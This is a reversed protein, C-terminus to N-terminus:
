TQTSTTQYNFTILWANKRMNKYFLKDNNAKKKAIFTHSVLRWREDTLEKLKGKLEILIKKLDERKEDSVSPNKIQVNLEGVQFSLAKSTGDIEDLRDAVKLYAQVDFNRELSRLKLNESM